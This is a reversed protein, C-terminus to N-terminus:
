QFLCVDHVMFMWPWSYSLTDQVMTCWWLQFQRDSSLFSCAYLSLSLRCDFLSFNINILPYQFMFVYWFFCGDGWIEEMLMTCFSGDSWAVKRPGWSYLKSARVWLISVKRNKGRPAEATITWGLCNFTCFGALQNVLLVYSSNGGDLFFCM